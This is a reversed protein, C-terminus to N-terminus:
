PQLTARYFEQPPANSAPLTELYYLTGDSSYFELQPGTTWRNTGLGARYDLTFRQDPKGGFLFLNEVQTGDASKLRAYRLITIPTLDPLVPSRLILGEVGVVILQRSDTAAGFLDKTTITGVATWDALNTSLLVTGAHGVVFYTDAICTVDTLWQTTGSTRAVWNVGDTSTRITGNQGVAVLNTGLYRVRYLWNTTQATRATWNIGNVSTIIAGDDGTAVFGGPWATVSSLFNTTPTTQRTWNTGNPSTFVSGRAGTIVYLGHGYTVGQLDNTGLRPLAFWIVGLSSSRNTGQLSTSAGGAMPVNTAMNPSIIISGADGVAVLLNTSGGVGLWISNTVLDPVLELTWNVGDGSTMVTARDGVAVYLDPVRMVEWLWHRPSDFSVQWQVPGFNTKYGEVMLGTQGALAWFSGQGLSTYYTWVPPGNSRALENSWGTGENLRVERRGCVLLASPTVAASFLDNTAGSVDPVWSVGANSSLLSLGGRGVALFRMGGLYAVGNLDVATGSTRQTWTTGNPSTAIFGADGVAVFTGAGYAVGTLWTSIGANQRRWYIGNTSTYVAGADGVAVALTPSAAVAELWDNTNNDSLVGRQVQDLADAYLVTGQAGVIILRQGLFAVGRLPNTTGTARPIWLDFDSSTYLQGREAVQVWLGPSGPLYALDVINNGHPLPNSFRWRLPQQVAARATVAATLCCLGIAWRWLGLGRKLPRPRPVTRGRRLGGAWVKAAHGAAATAVSGPSTM